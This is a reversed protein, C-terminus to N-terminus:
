KRKMMVVVIKKKRKNQNRQNREKKQVKVKTQKQKRRQPRLLNMLKGNKPVRLLNKIKIKKKNKTTM